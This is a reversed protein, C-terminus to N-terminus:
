ESKYDDYYKVCVVPNGNYEVFHCVAKQTHIEDDFYYDFVIENVDVDNEYYKRLAELSMNDEYKKIFEEVLYEDVFYKVRKNWDHVEVDSVKNKTSRNEYTIYYEGNKLNIIVSFDCDRLFLGSNVTNVFEYYFQMFAVKHFVCVCIQTGDSLAINNEALYYHDGFLKEKDAILFTSGGKSVIDFNDSIKNYMEDILMNKEITPCLEKCLENFFLVKSTAEEVICCASGNYNTFLREIISLELEM